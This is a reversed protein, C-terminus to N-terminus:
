DNYANAQLEGIAAYLNAVAKATLKLGRKSNAAKVIRMLAKEQAKEQRKAEAYQADSQLQGKITSEILALAKKLDVPETTTAHFSHFSPYTTLCIRFKKGRGLGHRVAVTISSGRKDLECHFRRTAANVAIATNKAHERRAVDYKRHRIDREENAKNVCDTCEHKQKWAMYGDVKDPESVFKVIEPHGCSRTITREFTEQQM